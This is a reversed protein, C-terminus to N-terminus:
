CEIVTFKLNKYLGSAPSHLTISRKSCYATITLICGDDSLFTFAFQPKRHFLSKLYNYDCSDLLAYSFNWTRMGERVVVRHMVGSEDRGSDSADLDTESIEAGTDPELMPLGDVKYYESFARLSM